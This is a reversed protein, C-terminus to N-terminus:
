NIKLGITEIKNRLLNLREALTVGLGKDLMKPINKLSEEIKLLAEENQHQLYCITAETAFVQCAAVFPSPKFLLWYKQASELDNKAFGYFFAADIWVMNRIGAPIEDIDDIYNKLHNEASDLNGLDFETQHLMGHLYVGQPLNLKKAITLAEKLEEISIDRPRTGSTTLAILKLMLMEFRAAEGGKLIRLIRAGDSSFGGTHFPIVTGIFIFLSLFSLFLFCSSIIELAIIKNPNLADVIYFLIFALVTLVLSALPGGAAYTAFRKNLNHTDTPLCIVLGGATNVNKNWKFLWKNQEKTWLLPGVVYMRFDFNMKIGAFAHGAEHIAIVVFFVPIFLLVIALLTPKSISINSQAGFYGILYGFAGCFILFVIFTITNNLKQKRTKM